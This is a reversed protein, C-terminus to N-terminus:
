RGMAAGCSPCKLTSLRFGPKAPVEAKCAPCVGSAGTAKASSGLGRGKRGFTNSDKVAGDGDRPKM